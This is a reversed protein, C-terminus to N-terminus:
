RVTEAEPLLKDFDVRFRLANKPTCCEVLNVMTEIVVYGAGEVCNKLFYAHSKDKILRWAEIRAEADRRVRANGTLSVAMSLDSNSFLWTVAPNREIELIKRSTASTLTYIFPLKELSLTAMWRARPFGLLDITTLVGPHSGDILEKIQGFLDDSESADYADSPNLPKGFSYHSLTTKM